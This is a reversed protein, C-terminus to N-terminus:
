LQDIYKKAKENYITKTIIGKDLLDKLRNLENAADEKPSSSKPAPKPASIPIVPTSVKYSSKTTGYEVTLSYAIVLAASLILLAYVIYTSASGGFLSINSSTSVLAPILMIVFSVTAFLSLVKKNNGINSLSVCFAILYFVFSIFAFIIIAVLEAPVSEWELISGIVCSSIGLCIAFLGLPALVFNFMANETSDKSSFVIGLVSIAVNAMDIILSLILIFRAKNIPDSSGSGLQSFSKCVSIFDIFFIIAFISFIILPLLRKKSFM